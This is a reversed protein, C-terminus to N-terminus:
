KNANARRWNGSSSQQTEDWKLKNYVDWLQAVYSSDIQTNYHKISADLIAKNLDETKSIWPFVKNIEKREQDSYATGSIANRYAQIALQTQTDLNVLDKDWTLGFLNYVRQMAWETIWTKWKWSGRVTNYERQLTKLNTAVTEYNTLKAELTAGMAKKAIQKAAETMEATNRASDVWQSMNQTAIDTLWLLKIKNKLIWKIDNAANIPKSFVMNKVENAPVTRSVPIAGKDKDFWVFNADYVTVSGDPNVGTVIGTHGTEGFKTAFVWWVQPVNSKGIDNIAKVKTEYTNWMGWKKGTVMKIYDNVLEGCQLTTDGNRQTTSYKYVAEQVSPSSINDVIENGITIQQTVDYQQQKIAADLLTQQTKAQSETIWQQATAIQAQEMPTIVPKNAYKDPNDAIIKNAAASYTMWQNIYNQLQQLDAQSVQWPQIIKWDYTRTGAYSTLTNFAKQVWAAKYWAAMAPTMIGQTVYDDLQGQNLWLIAEWNNADLRATIQSSKLNQMQVMAMSGDIRDNIDKTIKNANDLYKGISEARANQIKIALAGLSANVKEPDFKIGM